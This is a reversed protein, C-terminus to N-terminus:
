FRAGQPNYYDTFSGFNSVAKSADPSGIGGRGLNGLLAGSIQGVIAATLELGSSTAQMMREGSALANRDAREASFEFLRSTLDATSRALGDLRQQHAERYGPAGEAFWRALEASSRSLQDTYEELFRSAEGHVQAAATAAQLNLNTRETAYVDSLRGVLAEDGYPNRAAGRAGALESLRARDSRQSLALQQDTLTRETDIKMLADDTLAGYFRDYIEGGKGEQLGRARRVEEGVLKGTPSFAREEAMSRETNGTAKLKFMDALPGGVGRLGGVNAVSEAQAYLADATQLDGREAAAQAQDLLANAKNRIDPFQNNPDAFGLSKITYKNVNAGFIDPDLEYRYTYKSIADGGDPALLQRDSGLLSELYGLSRETSLAEDERQKLASQSTAEGIRAAWKDRGGVKGARAAISSSYVSAGASLAAGAAGVGVAVLSM